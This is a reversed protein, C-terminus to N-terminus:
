PNEISEQNALRRLRDSDVLVLEQRGFEVVRKHKLGALLRIATETSVGIMEGIERRSYPLPVHVPDGNCGNASALQLLLEALRGEANKLALTRVKRRASSLARSLASILRVGVMPHAQIFPVLRDRGLFCLQADTVAEASVSYSESPDTPLEGLVDGPGALGLIHDRGFRDSQYLKVAGHCLVYLGSAPTREHFIVQRRRYIATVSCARFDNLEADTLDSVISSGRIGCQECLIKRM